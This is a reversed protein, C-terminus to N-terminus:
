RSARELARELTAAAVVCSGVPTDPYWQVVWLEDTEIARARDEPALESEDYGHGREECLALYKEVTAYDTRHPNHTITLECAHPPLRRVLGDPVYHQPAQAADIVRDLLEVLVQPANQGVDVGSRDLVKAVRVRAATREAETM